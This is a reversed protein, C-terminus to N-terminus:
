AGHKRLAKPKGLIEAYLVGQAVANKGFTLGYPLRTEEMSDAYADREHPEPVQPERCEEIGTISSEVHRHTSETLPKVVHRAASVHAAHVRGMGPGPVGLSGPAARGETSAGTGESSAYNMSGGYRPKGCSTCFKAAGRNTTGCACRWASGQGEGPRAPAGQPATREMPAAAAQVGREQRKQREAQYDRLREAARTEDAELSRVDAQRQQAQKQQEAQKKKNNANIVAFIIAIIIIFEM